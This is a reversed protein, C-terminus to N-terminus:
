RADVAAAQRPVMQLFEPKAAASNPRLSKCDVAQGFHKRYSEWLAGRRAYPSSACLLLADPISAM